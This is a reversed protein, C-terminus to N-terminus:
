CGKERSRDDIHGKKVIMVETLGSCSMLATLCVLSAWNIPNELRVLVTWGTLPHTSARRHTTLPILVRLKRGSISSGTTGPDGGERAVNFLAMDAIYTEFIRPGSLRVRLRTLWRDRRIHQEQLLVLWM